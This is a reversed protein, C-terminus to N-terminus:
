GPVIWARRGEENSLSGFIFEPLDSPPPLVVGCCVPNPCTLAKNVFVLVLRRSKSPEGMAVGWREM